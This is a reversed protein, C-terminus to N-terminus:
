QDNEQASLEGFVIQRAGGPPRFTFQDNAISPNLNWSLDAVFQPRAADTTDTVVMRLPLPQDGRRIWVQWEAQAQASDALQNRM